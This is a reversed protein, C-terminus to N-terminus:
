TSHFGGDVHVMEGTTAPFWDSVLAVIAKGAASTDKQDWGLPARDGWMDELTEFGPISTAATTKLPGASVLNVRIGKDGV